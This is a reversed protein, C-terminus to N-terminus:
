ATHATVGVSATKIYNITKRGNDNQLLYFQSVCTPKKMIYGRHKIGPVNLLYFSLHIILYMYIYISINIYVYIYQYILICM